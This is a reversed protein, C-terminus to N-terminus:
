RYQAKLRAFTGQFYAAHYDLYKSVVRFYVGGEQASAQHDRIAFPACYLARTQPSKPAAQSM